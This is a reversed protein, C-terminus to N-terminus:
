ATDADGRNVMWSDVNLLEPHIDTTLTKITFQLRGKKKFFHNSLLDQSAKGVGWTRLLDIKTETLYSFLSSFLKNLDSLNKDIFIETIEGINIKDISDIRIIFFAKIEAKKEVQIFRYLTNPKQKYKWKFYAKNKNQHISNVLHKRIFDLQISNVAKTEQIQFNSSNHSLKKYIMQVPSMLLSVIHNFPSAIKTKSLVVNKINLVKIFVNVDSINEWGTKLHVPSSQENPFTFVLSFKYLTLYKLAYQNLDSFIGKRRYNSHVMADGAQASKYPRRNVLVETSFMSRAGVLMGQNDFACFILPKEAFPNKYNKWDFFSKDLDKGFANAYLAKYQTFDEPQYIRIKYDKNM